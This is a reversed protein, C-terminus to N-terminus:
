EEDPETRRLRVGSEIFRRVARPAISVRDFFILSTADAAPNRIRTL